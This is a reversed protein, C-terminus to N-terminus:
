LEAQRRDGEDAVADAQMQVLVGIEARGVVARELGPHDQADLRQDVLGAEAEAHLVLVHHQDGRRAALEHRVMEIGVLQQDHTLVADTVPALGPLSLTFPQIMRMSVNRWTASSTSRSSASTPM